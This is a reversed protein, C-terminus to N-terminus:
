EIPSTIKQWHPCTICAAHGLTEHVNQCKRPGAAQVAHDFKEDTEAPRYHPHLGSIQHAEARGDQCLGVVSLWAYWEPEPLTAADDKCHKMWTCGAYIPPLVPKPKDDQGPAGPAAAPDKAKGAPGRAKGTLTGAPDFTVGLHKAWEDLTWVATEDQCVLLRAQVPAFQDPSKVNWTGPLRVLRHLTATEPGDHMANLGARVIAKVFAGQAENDPPLIVPQALRFFGWAGPNGPRGTGGSAVIMQAPPWGAQEFRQAAAEPPMTDLDFWLYRVIAIDADGASRTGMRQRLVNCRVYINDYSPGGNFRELQEFTRENLQGRAFCLNAGWAPVRGTEPKQYSQIQILDQPQFLTELFERAMVRDLILPATPLSM